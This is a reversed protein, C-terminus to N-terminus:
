AYNAKDQDAERAAGSRRYRPFRVVSKHALVYGVRGVLRGARDDDIRGTMEKIKHLAAAFGDAVTNADPGFTEDPGAPRGNMGFLFPRVPIRGRFHQLSLRLDSRVHHLQAAANSHFTAGFIWDACATQIEPAAVLVREVADM